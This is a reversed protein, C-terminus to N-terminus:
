VRTRRGQRAARKIKASREIGRGMRPDRHVRKPAARSHVPVVLAVLALGHRRRRASLLALAARVLFSGCRHRGRRYRRATARPRRAAAAGALLRGGGAAVARAALAAVVRRACAVRVHAFHTVSNGLRRSSPRRRAGAAAALLLRRHAAVAAIVAARVVRVRAWLLARSARGRPERAAARRASEASRRQKRRARRRARRTRSRTGGRRRGRRAHAGGGRVPHVPVRNRRRQRGHGRGVLLGDEVGHGM